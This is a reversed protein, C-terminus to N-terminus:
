CRPLFVKFDSYGIQYIITYKVFKKSMKVVSISYTPYLAQIYMVFFGLNQYEIIIKSFSMFLGLSSTKAFIPLLDILSKIFADSIIASFGIINSKKWTM